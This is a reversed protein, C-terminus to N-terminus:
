TKCEPNMCEGTVQHLTKRQCNSCIQADNGSQEEPTCDRTRILRQYCEIRSEDTGYTYTYSDAWCKECSSM